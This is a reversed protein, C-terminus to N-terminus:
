HKVEKPTAHRHHLEGTEQVMMYRSVNVGYRGEALANKGFVMAVQQEQKEVCDTCYRIQSIWEDNVVQDITLRKRSDPELVGYMVRRCGPAEMRDLFEHGGVHHNYAFTSYVAPPVDTASAIAVSSTRSAMMDNDDLSNVKNRQSPPSSGHVSSNPSETIQSLPTVPTGTYSSASVSGSTSDSASWPGSPQYPPYHRQHTVEHPRSSTDSLLSSSAVSESGSRSGPASSSRERLQRRDHQLRRQLEGHRHTMIDNIFRAFRADKKRDARAWPMASYYMVYFIIGCAWVDVARPDYEEQYFEEPAIYPESGIIGRCPLPYPDGVSKFVNAIGFDTIKLIRGTVDILINEPKLDRHAVGMSHMYQVGNLLQRWLCHKEQLSIPPYSKTLLNFLDGGPAFEMVMCYEPFQDLRLQKALQKERQKQEKLRRVERQRLEQDQQQRRKKAAVLLQAESAANPAQARGASAPSVKEPYQHHHLRRPCNRFHQRHEHDQSLPNELQELAEVVSSRKSPTDMSRRRQPKGVVSRRRIPRYHKPPTSSVPATSAQARLEVASKIARVRGRHERPCSCDSCDDKVSMQVSSVLPGLAQSVSGGQGWMLKLERKQYLSRGKGREEEDKDEMWEPSPQDRVLDITKIINEHDMSTSICFEACVKKLYQRHTETAKPPRFKKIAYILGGQDSISLNDTSTRRLLRKRYAERQEPTVEDETTTTLTGSRPRPTLLTDERRDLSDDYVPLLTTFSSSTALMQTAPSSSVFLTTKPSKSSMEPVTVSKEKSSMANKIRKSSRVRLLMVQAQTGAGLERGPQGYKSQLTPARAPRDKLPASEATGQGSNNVSGNCNVGNRREQIRQGAPCSGEHEFDSTLPSYPPCCPSSPSFLEEESDGHETHRQFRSGIQWQQRKQQEQLPQPQPQVKAARLKHQAPVPPLQTMMPDVVTNLNPSLMLKKLFKARFGSTMSGPPRHVPSILKATMLTPVSNPASAPVVVATAATSLSTASRDVISQKSVIAQDHSATYYGRRSSNGSSVSLGFAEGAKETSFTSTLAAPKIMMAMDSKLTDTPPNFVRLLRRYLKPIQAPAGQASNHTQTPLTKHGHHTWLLCSNNAQPFVRGNNFAMGKSQALTSNSAFTAQKQPPRMQHVTSELNRELVPHKTQSCTRAGDDDVLELDEVHALYSLRHTTRMRGTSETHSIVTTTRLMSPWLSPIAETETFPINNDTWPDGSVALGQITEEERLAKDAEEAAVETVPSVILAGEHIQRTRGGPQDLRQRQSFTATSTTHPRSSHITEQRTDIRISSLTPRTTPRRASLPRSQVVQDDM